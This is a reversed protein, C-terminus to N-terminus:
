ARLSLATTVDRVLRAPETRLLNRTTHLVLWGRMALSTRRRDDWDLQGPTRHFRFGDCELAVLQAPWALDLVYTLDDCDVRFHLVPEPVGARRLMARVEDELPSDPVAAGDPRTSLVERAIAIGNRGRTALEAFREQVELYTTLDRRVADDLMAGLRSPSVYRAVDIITRAPTSVPIGELVTRDRSRLDNTEHVRAGAVRRPIPAPALLDFHQRRFRDLRWLGAARRAGAIMLPGGGLVKGCLAQEWSRPAGTVAYVQPEIAAVVGKQRLTRLQQDSVGAARIQARTVLGHQRAAMSAVQDFVAM